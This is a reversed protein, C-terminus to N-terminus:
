EIGRWLWENGEILKQVDLFKLAKPLSQLWQLQFQVEIFDIFDEELNKKM